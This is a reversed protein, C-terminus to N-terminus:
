RRTRRALLVAVVGAWGVVVTALLLQLRAADIAVLVAIAIALSLWAGRSFTYYQAALLVPMSASALARLIM